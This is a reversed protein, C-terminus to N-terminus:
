EATMTFKSRARLRPGIRYFIFPIPSMLTALGALLATAGVSGLARYMPGAFLPFAAAFASRVFSNGAMASAAYPRYATVLFTFSTTFIYITGMGIPIGAFIPVLPHVSTYTTFALWFLGLPFLVAGAMGIYLRVEPPPQGNYEKVKRAHLAIWFPQTALALVMGVGLGLFTLGTLQVSFGHGIPPASAFIYPFAQFTLYLVGLVLASWIDLLLAMTEHMLIRFPVTCSAWVAARVSKGSRELPAFYREDKTTGRLRIAKWKRLVPTSSEPVLLFLGVLEVAAWILMVYYTWRWDLNQNVFGSILPGLVPGLFPSSTYVAMPLAVNYDQFLDTVSGGAVSLFAAGAFGQIFRFVLHTAPDRALAVPVGLVCFATYSVRYIMARGFFESLPALLLPGCGLGAVFLSIPLISVTPSIHFTQQIAPQTFGAVSSFCTVCSAATCITLVQIWKKRGSQAQPDDSPDLTVEFVDVEVDSDRHDREQSDVETSNDKQLNKELDTAQVTGSASDNDGPAVPSAKGHM